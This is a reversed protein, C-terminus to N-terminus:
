TGRYTENRAVREIVSESVKFQEQAQRRTYGAALLSRIHEAQSNTLAAQYNSEGRPTTRRGKQACDRMNDRYSGLFLHLPNCCRRNDCRHLVFQNSSKRDKPADIEIKGMALFYAVRHVSRKRGMFRVSGYGTSNTSRTWNWCDDREGIAVYNWFSDLTGLIADSHSVGKPAGM